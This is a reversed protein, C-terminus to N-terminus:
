LSWALKLGVPNAKVASSGRWVEASPLRFPAQPPPPPALKRLEARPASATGPAGPLAAAAPLRYSVPLADFAAQPAGAQVTTDGGSDHPQLQATLATAALGLFIGITGM